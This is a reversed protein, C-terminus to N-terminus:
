SVYLRVAPNALVAVYLRRHIELEGVAHRQVCVCRILESRRCVRDRDRVGPGLGGGDGAARAAAFWAAAAAAPAERIGTEGAAAAAAPAERIGTVGKGIGRGAGTAGTAGTTGTTAAMGTMTGGPM